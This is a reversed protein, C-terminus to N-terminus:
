GLEVLYERRGLKVIDGTHIECEGSLPVGNVKTGNSSELDKIYFTGAKVYFGCHKGSISNDGGILLTCLNPNRGVIVTTKFDCRFTKMPDTRDTLMVRHITAKETEAISEKKDAKTLREKTTVDKRKRKKLGGILLLVAAMVLFMVGAGIGCWILETEYDELFSALALCAEATEGLMNRWLGAGSILCIKM